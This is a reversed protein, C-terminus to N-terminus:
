RGRRSKRHTSARPSPRSRGPPAAARSDRTLTSKSADTNSPINAFRCLWSAMMLTCVIDQVLEKDPLQYRTLQNRMGKILPGTLGGRQVLMKLSNLMELKDSNFKIAEVNLGYAEFALEHLASQTGTADIGQYLPNYKEMAYRYSSLFPEYKGRGNIWHFYVIEHPWVAINIVAVCAANRKPPAGTGPDGALVYVGRADRPKEYMTLGHHHHEEIRYGEPAAGWLEEGSVMRVGRAENNLEMNFIDAVQGRTFETGMGEPFFGLLEVDKVEDDMSAEINAIQQPNLYYNDYMVVRLSLNLVPDYSPHAPDHGMDWLERLWPEDTPTTGMTLLGLRDTNDPRKGRLRTQLATHTRALRNDFGAEDYNIWDREIGRLNAGEIGATRCDIYSGNKFVIQPYPKRVVDKVYRELTPNADIREVIWDFLLQSQAATPAANTFKFYKTTLCWALASMAVVTTKGSGVGGVVVKRMQPSHHFRWQKELPIIGSGHDAGGLFWSTIAGLGVAPDVVGGQYKYETSSSFVPPLFARQLM